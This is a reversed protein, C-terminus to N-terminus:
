MKTLEISVAYILRPNRSALQWKMRPSCPCPTKALEYRLKKANRILLSVCGRLKLDLINRGLLTKGRESNLKQNTKDNSQLAKSKEISFFIVISNAGQVGVEVVFNLTLSTEAKSPSVDVINRGLLTEGRFM